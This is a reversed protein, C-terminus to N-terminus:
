RRSAATREPRRCTPVHPWASSRRPGAGHATERATLEVAALEAATAPIGRPRAMIPNARRASPRAPGASSRFSASPSFSGRRHGFSAFLHCSHVAPRDVPGVALWARCGRGARLPLDMRNNPPDDAAGNILGALWGAPSRSLAMELSRSVEGDTCYLAEDDLGSRRGQFCSHVRLSSYSARTTVIRSVHSAVISFSPM